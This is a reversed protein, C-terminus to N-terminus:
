FRLGVNFMVGLDALNADTQVIDSWTYSFETRLGVDLYGAGVPTEMGLYGAVYAGGIVDTRHRIQAFRASASGYRGGGDVSFVLKREMDSASGWLYWQRGAGVNFTTRSLHTMNVTVAAGPQTIVFPVAGGDVYNQTTGLGVELIWAATEPANFLLARGGGQVTYGTRAIDGLNGGVPFDLGGRLYVESAIPGHRGIPGMCYGGRRYTIWDSLGFSGEMVTEPVPTPQPLGNSYTPAQAWASANALLALVLAGSFVFKRTM